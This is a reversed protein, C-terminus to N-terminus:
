HQMGNLQCAAGQTVNKALLMRAVITTDDAHLDATENLMIARSVAKLVCSEDLIRLKGNNGSVRWMFTEAASKLGRCVLHVYPVM